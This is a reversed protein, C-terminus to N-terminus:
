EVFEELKNFLERIPIPLNNHDIKILQEKDNIYTTFVGEIAKDVALDAISINSKIEDFNLNSVLKEIESLQQNNLVSNKIIGNNNIELTDKHINIKYLFGRTQAKYSLSFQKITEQNQCSSSITIFVLMIHLLSKM